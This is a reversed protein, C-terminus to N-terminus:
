QSKSTQNGVDDQIAPPKIPKVTLADNFSCNGELAFKMARIRGVTVTLVNQLRADSIDCFPATQLNITGERQVIELDGNKVHDAFKSRVAAESTKKITAKLDALQRASEEDKDSAQKLTKYLEQAKCRWFWMCHRDFQFVIDRPDRFFPRHAAESNGDPDPITHGCGIPPVNWFQNVYDRLKNIDLEEYPKTRVGLNTKAYAAVEKTHDPQPMQLAPLGNVLWLLAELESEYCLANLNLSRSLQINSFDKSFLFSEEQPLLM